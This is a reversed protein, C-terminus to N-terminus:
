DRQEKGSWIFGTIYFVNLLFILFFNLYYIYPITPSNIYYKRVVYFPISPVFYVLLAISIWFLLIKNIYIIKDSNLIELFYLIIGIIIFVAGILYTTVFYNTKFSDFFCNIIFAIYYILLFVSLKKKSSLKFVSNKYLILLFSVQVVQYINYLISNNNDIHNQYYQGFFDNFVTYWLLILFYKLFSKKYKYYFYSGLIAPVIQFYVIAERVM